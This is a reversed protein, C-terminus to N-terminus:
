PEAYNGVGHSGHSVSVEGVCLCRCADADIQSLLILHMPASPAPCHATKRDDGECFEQEM